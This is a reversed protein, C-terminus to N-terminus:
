NNKLKLKMRKKMKLKNEKIIKKEMKKSRMQKNM